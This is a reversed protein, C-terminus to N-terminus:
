HRLVGAINSFHDTWLRGQGPSLVRGLKRRVLQKAFEGEPMVLIWEATLVERAPRDTSDVRLAIRHVTAALNVVVPDLDLYINSVHVALIGDPKLHRSYSRFAEGTLLHVPISDGSFADLILVDFNQAPEAELSLRADGPVIEVRAGCDKLFTFSTRALAEVMPNLEYFRYTDGRQGYAAVTGVGLGVIGVRRPSGAPQLVLGVGSERGYYYGPERRLEDTLIQGGHAVRGHFLTRVTGATASKERVSLAGYFNRGRFVMTGGRMGNGVYLVVLLLSASTALFVRSRYGMLFRLVLVLAIAVAVQLEFYDPFIAPAVLGTFVGGLAGGLSVSLYFSTLGSTDPKLQVLQSHLFTCLVFLATLIISIGPIPPIHAGPIVLVALLALPALLRYVKPQFLGDHEFCLIFSALYITLPALWLLPVPAIDQCLESTVAMLLMSSCAPLLVWSTRRSLGAHFRGSPRDAAGDATATWARMAVWSCSLAFLSYAVRWAEMQMRTDLSPEIAFPYALLALLSGLNSLAFLRYPIRGREPTAYWAQLLPSTSSLVLYPFGVSAAIYGLVALAPHQVVAPHTGIGTNLWLALTSLGLLAVHTLAQAKRSLKAISWHAYWYGFLLVTQFFVLCLMWVGAGGGFGPLLQKAVIPQVLFLLTASVFISIAYPAIEATMGVPKAALVADSTRM